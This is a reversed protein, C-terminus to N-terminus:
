AYNKRREPSSWDILNDTQLNVSWEARTTDNCYFGELNAADIITQVMEKTASLYTFQKDFDTALVIKKDPTFVRAISAFSQEASLLVSDIEHAQRFEGTFEFEEVTTDGLSKLAAMIPNTLSTPLYDVEAPIINNKDLLTKLKIWGERDAKTRACHLYALLRDLESIDQLGSAQIVEAWTTNQTCAIIEKKNPWSDMEFTINYHPKVKLFPHLIVFTTEYKKFASRITPISSKEIVEEQKPTPHVM